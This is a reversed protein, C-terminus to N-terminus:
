KSWIIWKNNKAFAYKGTLITYMTKAVKGNFSFIPASKGDFVAVRYKTLPLKKDGILSVIKESNIQHIDGFKPQNNYFYFRATNAYERGLVRSTGLTHVSDWRAKQTLKIIKKIQDNDTM